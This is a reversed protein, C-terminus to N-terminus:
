IFNLYNLFSKKIPRVVIGKEEVSAIVPGRGLKKGKDELRTIFDAIRVQMPIMEMAMVVASMNGAAGAYVSGRLSGLIIINGKAIVRAGHNVDGIVVISAESELVDGRKLDGRYFQGTQASLEMLRETLAKECRAIRNADTDLLCLIEIQSNDTIAQVVQLEELPSLNRGELTLTLQVAGWFKASDRFKKGIDCLLEEFSISHDLIVTMGAKSGKIVVTSHMRRTMEGRVEAKSETSQREPPM